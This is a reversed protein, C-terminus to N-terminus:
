GTTKAYIERDLDRVDVSCSATPLGFGVLRALLQDAIEKKTDKTRGSLLYVTTHIFDANQGAVLAHACPYLRVKIDKEAFQGSALLSDHCAHMIAAFEFGNELNKSYEVVAHPM